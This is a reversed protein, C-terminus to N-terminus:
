INDTKAELNKLHAEPSKSSPNIRLSNRTKKTIRAAPERAASFVVTAKMPRSAEPTLSAEALPIASVSRSARILVLRKSITSRSRSFVRM